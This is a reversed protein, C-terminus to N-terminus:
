SNCLLLRPWRVLSSSSLEHSRAPWVKLTTAFYISSSSRTRIELRIYLSSGLVIVFTRLLSVLRYRTMTWPYHTLLRTSSSYCTLTLPLPLCLSSDVLCISVPMLLFRLYILWCSLLLFASCVLLRLRTSLGYEYLYSFVHFLFPSTRTCSGTARSIPFPFVLYALGSFTVRGNLAYCGRAYEYFFVFTLYIM